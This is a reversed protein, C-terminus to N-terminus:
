DFIHEALEAWEAALEPATEALLGDLWWRFDGDTALWSGYPDQALWEVYDDDSDYIGGNRALDMLESYVSAAAYMYDIGDDSYHPANDVVAKYAADIASTLPFVAAVRVALEKRQEDTLPTYDTDNM